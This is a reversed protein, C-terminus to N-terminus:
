FSPAARRSDLRGKARSPGLRSLSSRRASRMRRRTGGTACTRRSNATTGIKRRAPRASDSGNEVQLVGALTLRVLQDVAERRPAPGQPADEAHVAVPRDQEAGHLPQARAFPRMGLPVSKRLKSQVVDANAPVVVRASGSNLSRQPGLSFTASQRSSSASVM